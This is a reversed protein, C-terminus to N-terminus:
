CEERKRERIWERERVQITTDFYGGADLEAVTPARRATTAPTADPAAPDGGRGPGSEDGDSSLGTHTM